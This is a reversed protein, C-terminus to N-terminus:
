LKVQGDTRRLYVIIHHNRIRTPAEAVYEYGTELHVIKDNIRVDTELPLNLKVRGDLSAYPENQSVRLAGRLNFHCRMASIDPTGSYSFAPSDPLGFGPSTDDKVIHYIDCTHNLLADFGM